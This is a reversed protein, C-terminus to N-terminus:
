DLRVTLQAPTRTVIRFRTAGDDSAVVIGHATDTWTATHAVSRDDPGGSFLHATGDANLEFAERPRRSLPIPGTALRYVQGGADDEEFVHVWRVDYM